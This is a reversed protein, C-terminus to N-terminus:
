ANREAELRTRLDEVAMCTGASNTAWGPEADWSRLFAEVAERLSHPEEVISTQGLDDWDSGSHDHQPHGM